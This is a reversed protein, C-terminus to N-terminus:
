NSFALGSVFELYEKKAEVEDVTATKNNSLWETTDAIAYNINKLAKPALKTVMDHAKMKKKLDYLCDELANYADVKRKYEQDEIKFKEADNIMKEITLIGNADIEDTEEVKSVRKPALPIGSITFEGLLYNETARTREGQYVKTMIASQNDEATLFTATKKTPILTNRPIVVQMIDGVVKCGYYSSWLVRGAEDPNISPMIAEEHLMDLEITAQTAYSVSIKARECAVKLRGMARANGTLDKNLEEVCYSVLHNDFDQGGLHTDGAVAKVEFTGRGLSWYAIAAATPENIMSVVNLGAIAAADKTAQRQCDNFYAPVTIVANKVTEGIYTEAVEKMKTLVMSSIEEASFQKEQDKYTVVIRPADNPVEVIKFPWLKMDDLVESDSFRRGIMRKADFVTNSPNRSIQNKAGDGILRETHTFAVCSPTIRNGQDNPIIEIRDHKWVAVCSYTTGLDIGIAPAGHSGGAM